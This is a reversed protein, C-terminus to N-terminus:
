LAPPVTVIVLPVKLLLLPELLWPPPAIRVVPPTMVMSLVRKLWFSDSLLPPPPAM